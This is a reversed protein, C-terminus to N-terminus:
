STVPIFFPLEIDYPTNDVTYTVKVTVGDGTVPQGNAIWSEGADDITLTLTEPPAGPRTITMTVRGAVSAPLDSRVADTFWVRHRGARDFVVEYHLDDRMLVMGGHHPTHDGHPMTLGQHQSDAPPKPATAAAAPREPARDCGIALAIGLNLAGLCALSRTGRVLSARLSAFTRTRRAYRM